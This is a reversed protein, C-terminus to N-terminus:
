FKLSLGIILHRTKVFNQPPLPPYITRTTPVFLHHHNAMFNIALIFFVIVQPLELRLVIIVQLIALILFPLSLLEKAPTLTSFVKSLFPFILQFTSLM